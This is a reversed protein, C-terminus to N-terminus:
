PILNCTPEPSESAPAHNGAPPSSICAPAIDTDPKGDVLDLLKAAERELATLAEILQSEEPTYGAGRPVGYRRRRKLDTIWFRARRKCWLLGARDRRDIRLLPGFADQLVAGAHSSPVRPTDPLATM